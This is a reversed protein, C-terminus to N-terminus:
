KSSRFSGCTDIEGILTMGDLSNGVSTGTVSVSWGKANLDGGPYMDFSFHKLDGPSGGWGRVCGKEPIPYWGIDVKLEVTDKEVNVRLFRRRDDTGIREYGDELCYLGDKMRYVRFPGYGCM